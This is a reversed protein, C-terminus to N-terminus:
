SQSALEYEEEELDFTWAVAEKATKSTPPVRLFYSKFRLGSPVGGLRMMLGDHNVQADKGFTKIAESVSLSGDSEPTSNLLEVMVISEDDTVEKKWLRGYNDSSILKSKGEKLYRETGFKEIMVRRVESNGESDIKSPNIQEPNEMIWSPIRVGHIHYLKWGDRWEHSPGSDNHPRNQDDKHIQSPFNSVICFEKHMVRFGGERAAHEWFSYNYHSKLELGLVDRAAVLFSDFAAWM